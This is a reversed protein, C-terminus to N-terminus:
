FIMTGKCEFEFFALNWVRLALALGTGVCAAAEVADLQLFKAPKMM